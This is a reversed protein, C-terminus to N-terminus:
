AHFKVEFLRVCADAGASVVKGQKGDGSEVWLVSNVGGPGVNKLAINKMPKEVSWIYM